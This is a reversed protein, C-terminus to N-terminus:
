RSSGTQPRPEPVLRMLGTSLLVLAAALGLAALWALGAGRDLGPGGESPLTLGFTELSVAEVRWGGPEASLVASARLRGGDLREVLFPVVYGDDDLLSTVGSEFRGPGVEVLDLEGPELEEWDPVVLHSVRDAAFAGPNGAAGQNLSILWREVIGEPRETGACSALLLMSMVALV